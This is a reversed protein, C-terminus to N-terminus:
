GSRGWGVDVVLRAASTGGLDAELPAGPPATALLLVQPGPRLSTPPAVSAPAPLVLLVGEPRYEVIFDTALGNGRRTACLHVRDRLGFPSPRSAPTKRRAEQPLLAIGQVELQAEGSMRTRSRLDTRQELIPARLGGNAEAFSRPYIQYFVASKWWPEAM